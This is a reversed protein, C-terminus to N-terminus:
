IFHPTKEKSDGQALREDANWLQKEFLTKPNFRANVCYAHANAAIKKTDILLTM